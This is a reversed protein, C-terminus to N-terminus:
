RVNGFVSQITYLIGVGWVGPHIVTEFQMGCVQCTVLRM